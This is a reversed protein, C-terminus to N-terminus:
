GVGESVAGLEIWQDGLLSTETSTRGTDPTSCYGTM